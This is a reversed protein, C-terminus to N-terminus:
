RGETFPYVRTVVVEVEEITREVEPMSAIATKADEETFFIPLVSFDGAVGPIRINEIAKDKNLLAWFKM